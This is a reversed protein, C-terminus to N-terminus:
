LRYPVASVRVSRKPDSAELWHYYGGAPSKRSYLLFTILALPGATLMALDLRCDRGLVTRKICVADRRCTRWIKIFRMLLSCAVFQMDLGRAIVVEHM